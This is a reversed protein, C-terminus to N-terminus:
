IAEDVLRTRAGSSVSEGRRGYTQVSGAMALVSERVARQGATLLDRNTRALAQIEATLILFATRHQHLMDNWPAPAANALDALSANVGLGLDVGVAEVEAARIVETNRIQELVMEVERTAHALWRTRNAALVLQEEELKFLLLELMERERWLMSSLDALGM